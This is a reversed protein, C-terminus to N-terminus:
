VAGEADHGHIRKDGRPSGTHFAHLTVDFGLLRRLCARIKGKNWSSHIEWHVSRPQGLRLLWSRLSVNSIRPRGVTRSAAAAPGAASRENTKHQNSSNQAEERRRRCYM